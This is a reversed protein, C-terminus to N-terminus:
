KDVTSINSPSPAAPLVDSLSPVVGYLYSSLHGHSQVLMTMTLLLIHPHLEMTILNTSIAGLRGMIEVVAAHGNYAAIYIPTTGDNTPENVDAGLRGSIEMTTSINPLRHASILLGLLSPTEDM